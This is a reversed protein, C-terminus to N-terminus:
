FLFLIVLVLWSPVVLLFGFLPNANGCDDISFEFCTRIPVDIDDEKKMIIM